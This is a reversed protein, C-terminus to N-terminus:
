VSALAAPAVGAAHAAATQAVSRADAGVDYEEEEEGESARSRKRSSPYVLPTSTYLYSLDDTLVVEGDKRAFFYGFRTRVVDEQRPGHATFIIAEYHAQKYRTSKCEEEEPLCVPSTPMGCLMVHRLGLGHLARACRASRKYESQLPRAPKIEVVCPPKTTRLIYDPTYISRGGSGDQAHSM